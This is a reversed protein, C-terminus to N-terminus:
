WKMQEDRQSNAEMRRPEPHMVISVGVENCGMVISVGVDNCGMVISVGVENSERSMTRPMTIKGNAQV